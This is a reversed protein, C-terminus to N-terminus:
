VATFFSAILVCSRMTPVSASKVKVELDRDEGLTMLQLSQFTFTLLVSLQLFATGGCPEPEKCLRWSTM